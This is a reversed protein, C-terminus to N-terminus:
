FKLKRGVLWGKSLWDDLDNKHISMSRKESLSYIWCKGYQSNKSGSQHISNKLGIANKSENTHRKGSFNDYRIKGSKHLQKMRDSTIDSQALLTTRVKNKFEDSRRKGKMVNGNLNIHDWGGEGGIKLNYTDERLVFENDVLAKEKEYMEEESSLEFLIEKSFNLLGYKRQARKLLKGSGMYGDNKNMTKHAGIYIKNNVLNTIKYILYYIRQNIAAM